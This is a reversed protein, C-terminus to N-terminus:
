NEAFIQELGTLLAQFTDKWSENLCNLTRDAAIAEIMSQVDVTNLDTHMEQNRLSRIEFLEFYNLANRGYKLYHHIIRKHNPQSQFSDRHQQKRYDFVLPFLRSTGTRREIALKRQFEDKSDNQLDMDFKMEFGSIYDM